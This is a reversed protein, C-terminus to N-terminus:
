CSCCLPLLLLLLLLLLMQLAATAIVFLLQQQQVLLGVLHLSSHPSPVLNSLTHPHVICAHGGLVATSAVAAPCQQM